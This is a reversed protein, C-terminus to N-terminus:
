DLCQSRESGPTEVASPFITIFITISALMFLYGRTEGNTGAGLRIHLYLGTGANVGNLYEPKFLCPFLSLNRYQFTKGGMPSTLLSGSFKWDEMEQAPREEKWCARDLTTQEQDRLIGVGSAAQTFGGSDVQHRSSVAMLTWIQISRIDQSCGLGLTDSVM